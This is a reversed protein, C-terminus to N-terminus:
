DAFSLHSLTSTAQDVNSGFAAMLTVVNSDGYSSNAVIGTLQSGNGLFYNGTINGTAVINTVTNAGDSGVALLSVVNANGYGTTPVVPNANGSYLTTYNSSSTTSM